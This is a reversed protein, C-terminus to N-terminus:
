LKSKCVMCVEADEENKAGCCPCKVVVKYKTVVKPKQTEEMPEKKPEDFLKPAEQPADSVKYPESTAYYGADNHMAGQTKNVDKIIDECSVFQNQIQENKPSNKQQKIEQKSLQRGGAVVKQEECTSCGGNISNEALELVRESAEVKNKAIIKKGFYKKSVEIDFISLRAVEIGLEEKLEQLKIFLKKEIEAKKSFLDDFEIGAVASEIKNQMFFEIEGVVKNNKLIAFEEVLYSLFKTIDCVKYDIFCNLRAKIKKNNSMFCIKKTRIDIKMQKLNLYYLDADVVKNLNKENHKNARRYFLRFMRPLTIEDLKHTGESVIDCFHNYYISVLNYGEEVVIEQGIKFADNKLKVYTILNNKDVDKLTITNNFMKKIKDILWM